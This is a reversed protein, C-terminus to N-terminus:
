SVLQSREVSDRVLSKVVHTISSPACDAPQRGRCELQGRIAVDLGGAPQEGIPKSVAHLAEVGETRAEDM